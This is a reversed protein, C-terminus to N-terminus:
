RATPSPVGPGGLARRGELERLAPFAGVMRLIFFVRLVLGGVPPTGGADVAFWATALGDLAFLGVGLGLALKSLRNRVLWGLGAYLAGQVVSLWGLGLDLLATVEFLVAVLGLLTNLGAVFYLIGSALKVREVPDELTGPLAVGNRKLSLGSNGFGQHLRVHLTSGDGLPLDQGAKLAAANPVTGLLKDDLSVTLNKWMWAWTVTVRPAGGPELAFKRTPM